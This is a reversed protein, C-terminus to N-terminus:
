KLKDAQIEKTWIQKGDKNKITIKLVRQTRPGSVQLLGYNHEDVLTGDVRYQNNENKGSYVGATLPSVTLYHWDEELVSLESHHRDGDM